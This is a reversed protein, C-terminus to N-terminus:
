HESNKRQSICTIEQVKIIKNLKISTFSARISRINQLNFIFYNSLLIAIVVVFFLRHLGTQKQPTHFMLEWPRFDDSSQPLFSFNLHELGSEVLWQTHCIELDKRLTLEM